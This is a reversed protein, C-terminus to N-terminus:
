DSTQFPDTSHLGIAPWYISNISKLCSM